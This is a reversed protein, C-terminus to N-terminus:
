FAYSLGIIVLVFNERAKAQIKDLLFYVSRM